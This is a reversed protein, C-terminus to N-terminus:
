SVTLMNLGLTIPIERNLITVLIKAKKRRKNIFLIRGSINKLPGSTIIVKKNEDFVADSIRAVGNFDTISMLFQMEEKHVKAFTSNHCIPHLLDNFPANNIEKLFKNIDKHIFIYGSFLPKIVKRQKGKIHYFLERCPIYLKFRNNFLIDLSKKLNCESGPLTSLVYWNM